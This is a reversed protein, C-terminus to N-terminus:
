KAPTAKPTYDLIAQAEAPLSALQGESLESDQAYAAAFIDFSGQLRRVKASTTDRLAIAETAAKSQSDLAANKELLALRLQELHESTIKM